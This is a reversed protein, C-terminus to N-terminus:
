HAYLQLQKDLFVFHDQHAFLQERQILKHAIIDQQDLLVHPSCLILNINDQLVYFKIIVAQQDIIAKAM